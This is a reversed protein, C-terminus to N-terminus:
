LAPTDITGSAGTIVGNTDFTLTFTALGARAELFGQPTDPAFPFTIEIVDSRQLAMVKTVQAEAIYKTKSTEGLGSAKLFTINVIVVPRNGFDPDRALTSDIQINANTFSVSELTSAATTSDSLTSSGAVTGSIRFAMTSQTPHTSATQALASANGLLLVGIMPIVSLVSRAGNLLRHLKM